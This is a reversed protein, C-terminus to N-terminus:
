LPKDVKMEYLKTYRIRELYSKRLFFRIMGKKIVALSDSQVKTM